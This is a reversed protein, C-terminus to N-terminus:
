WKISFIRPNVRFSIWGWHLQRDATTRKLREMTSTGRMFTYGVSLKVDKMISWSAGLEMMHGLTYSCDPVKVMTAMYHYAANVSLRPIPTWTGGAQLNHLGPTLGGYYTSLYFFDMAGYFKHHSGYLPNFGHIKKLQAFGLGGIPPVHFNEDGSLLDYSVFAKWRPNFVHSARVSMMWASLPIDYETRGCQYYGSAEVKWSPPAYCLYTGMLQQYKTDYNMKDGHQMGINMFLASVGLHLRPADFHYWLDHMAKYPQAGNVYYTGGSVNEANQNFAFIAHVKHNHGEYGVRVVDHSSAAVTWDDSGIIREDDYFLGIRGVQAFIGQKSQVRAWAEYLNFSGRGSQGWVGSHQVNIYAQLWPRAYKVWLRSRELFFTARDDGNIAEGNEDVPMLGGQRFEGRALIDIGTSFEQKPETSLTTDVIAQSPTQAWLAAPAVCAALLFPLRNM